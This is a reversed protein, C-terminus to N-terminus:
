LTFLHIYVFSRGTHIIFYVFYLPLLVNSLCLPLACVAFSLAAGDIVLAYDSDDDNEMQM